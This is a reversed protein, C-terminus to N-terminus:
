EGDRTFNHCRLACDADCFVDYGDFCVNDSRIDIEGGCYACCPAAYATDCKEMACITCLRTGDDGDIWIEEVIEKCKECTYRREYEREREREDHKWTGDRLQRKLVETYADVYGAIKTYLVGKLSKDTDRAIHACKRMQRTYDELEVIQGRMWLQWDAFKRRIM